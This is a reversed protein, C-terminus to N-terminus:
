KNSLVLYEWSKLVMKAEKELKMKENSFVNNYEGEYGTGSLNFNQNKDSFNLIVVVKDGDKERM